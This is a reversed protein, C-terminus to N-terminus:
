ARWVSASRTSCVSRRSSCCSTHAIEGTRSRSSARSSARRSQVAAIADFPMEHLYHLTVAERARDPLRMIAERLRARSEAAVLADAIDSAAAPEAASELPIEEVRRGRYAERTAIRYLWPRFLAPDRLTRLQRVVIVFTEQLVDDARADDRTLVRVYGRLASQVAGLLEGLAERDGSQALLVLLAEHRDPM